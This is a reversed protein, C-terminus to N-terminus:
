KLQNFDNITGTFIQKLLQEDIDNVYQNDQSVVIAVGDYCYTGYFMADQTNEEKKFQRSAFGIDGANAGDKESGLVRKYGDSSGSQNLTFNVNGARTQFDELCAKLTKEVSTSGVCTITIHSHDEKIWPYKSVLESWPKGDELDVQQGKAQIIYRAEKSHCLYDVFAEVLQRKRESDFDNSARTVFMFPRQLKYSGNLVNESTPYVGNFSLAKLHNDQFNTALSVYGIGHIDNGVKSAMDDNGSVENAYLCLEGEMDIGKEFAERTGSSSDRTYIHIQSTSQSTDSCGFLCLCILLLWRKKM